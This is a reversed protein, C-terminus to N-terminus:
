VALLHDISAFAARARRAEDERGRRRLSPESRRLHPWAEGRDVLVRGEAVVDAHFAPQAEVDQLRLVDVPAGVVEALKTSLDVVRELGADRMDVLVDVDSSSTDTGRAGSGFLLAFRVNQETRLAARLAALLSWSRRVYQREGLSLELTRPTRRAARLTGQNVARRLTRESVGVDEALLALETMLGNYRRRTDSLHDQSTNFVATATRMVM